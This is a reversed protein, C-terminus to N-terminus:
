WRRLRRGDPAGLDRGAQGALAGVFTIRYTIGSTRLVPSRTVTVDAASVGLAAVLADRVVDQAADFAIAATTVGNVTITFTGAQADRVTIVHVADAPANTSDVTMGLGSIEDSTVRGIDDATEGSDDVVLRDDAGGADIDLFGNIGDVDGGPVAGTPDSLVGDAADALSSVLVLDAGAGTTVITHGDITRVNVTDGGDRTDLTTQGGHTSVITFDDSGSGLDINLFELGAYTIGSPGMGLGTLSTSTLSGTNDSADAWDSVNVTDAAGGQGDITLHGLIANVTGTNTPANSSVNVTDNGGGLLLVTDTAGAPVDGDGNTSTVDLTTDGLGLAIQLHEIGTYTVGAGLGLGTVTSSTIAGNGGTIDGTDDLYLWDSASPANGNVMVAGTIANLTGGSSVTRIDSSAASGLEITDDDDNGNITVAGATAQVEIWDDGGDGNITITASAPSSHLSVDDDGAGADVTTVGGHVSSM